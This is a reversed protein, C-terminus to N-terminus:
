MTIGLIRAPGNQERIRRRIRIQNAQQSRILQPVTYGLMTSHHGAEVGAATNDALDLNQRLAGDLDMPPSPEPIGAALNSAWAVLAHGELTPTPAAPAPLQSDLAGRFEQRAAAELAVSPPAPPPLDARLRSGNEDVCLVVPTTLDLPTYSTELVVAAGISPPAYIM